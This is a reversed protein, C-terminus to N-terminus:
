HFTIMRNYLKINKHSGNKSENIRKIKLHKTTKM